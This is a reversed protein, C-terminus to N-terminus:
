SKAARHGGHSAGGSAHEVEADAALGDLVRHGYGDAVVTM